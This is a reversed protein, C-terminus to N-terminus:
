VENYRILISRGFLILRGEWCFGWRLEHLAGCLEVSAQRQQKIVVTDVREGPSGDEESM